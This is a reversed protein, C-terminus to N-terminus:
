KNEEILEQNYQLREEDTMREPANSKIEGANMPAVGSQEEIVFRPSNTQTFNFSFAMTAVLIWGSIIWKTIKVKLIHAIIIYGVLSVLLFKGVSLLFNNTLFEIEM